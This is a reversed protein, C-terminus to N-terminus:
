QQKRRAAQLSSLLERESHLVTGTVVALLAAGVSIHLIARRWFGDVPCGYACNSVLQGPGGLLLWNSTTAIVFAACYAALTRRGLSLRRINRGRLSADCQGVFWVSYLIRAIMNLADALILGQAELYSVLGVSLATHLVSFGILWTNSHALQSPTVVGHQFAELIGNIALLCIYWSYLALASPAGTESWGQGYVIRLALYAYAPGFAAALMGACPYAHRFM